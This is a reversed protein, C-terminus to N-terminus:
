PACGGLLRLHGVVLESSAPLPPSPVNRPKPSRHIGGTVLLLTLQTPASLPCTWLSCACPGAELLRGHAAGKNLIAKIRVVMYFCITIM